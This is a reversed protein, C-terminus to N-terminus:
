KLIEERWNTIFEPIRYYWEQSDSITKTEDIIQDYLIQLRQHTFERNAEKCELLTELIYLFDEIRLPIIKQSKGEYKYKISSWFTNITDRHVKPAIFICYATKSPNQDEFDRLHRMVPQGENYWQSRDRLMTVECIANYSNYFCEIDPKEQLHLLLRNM